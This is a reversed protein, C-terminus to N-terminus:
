KKLMALMEDVPRTNIVDQARLWARRGSHIGYSLLDMEAPEHADTSIAIRCGLEVARRTYVDNLDLRAPHANIEVVTGTAACAQLVAEMDIATEPRSGLLRGTPHGLIDVHPNRVARLCRATIVERDQRLSSHISAIVVDLEALVEDPLGLSGDALIDVETGLLLRFRIGEHQWSENLRNIIERQEHLRAADVGGTIGLGVSHDSVLWYEYGRALAAAAMEAITARGDSFDSHGHLEGRIDEERILEPLAHAQAAAIEGRNQRLEPPIWDLGLFAYLAEEETFFRMVSEDSTSKLGYESLSWGQELALERLTVNHAKSGTFYQLAAGWHQAAVVRLDCELGNTLRVRTKAPGGVVVDVVQPLSRFATMVAQPEESVCLIDLDGVTEQWRRVSGAVEIRSIATPVAAQLQAVLNLAM